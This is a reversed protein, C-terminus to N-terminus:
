PASTKWENTKTKPPLCKSYDNKRYAEPDDRAIVAAKAGATFAKQRAKVAAAIRAEYADTQDETTPNDQTPIGIRLLDQKLGALQEDLLAKNDNWHGTEHERTARYPCSDESYISSIAMRQDLSFRIKAEHVWAKGKLVAWGIELHPKIHARTLGARDALAAAEEDDDFAPNEMTHDIEDITKPPEPNDSSFKVSAPLEVPKAAVPPAKAAEERMKKFDVSQARASCALALLLGPVLPM